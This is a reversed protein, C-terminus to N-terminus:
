ELGVLELNLLNSTITAPFAAFRYRRSQVRVTYSGSAVETFEFSGFSSTTVNRVAGQSDILSVVANRLSQGAPTLARGSIVYRTDSNMTPRDGAQGFQRIIPGDTSRNIIWRSDSTRFVAFDAHGDGDYDGPVPLDNPGGIPIVNTAGSASFIVSFSGESPRYFSLDTEGDGDFDGPTLKDTSSGFEVVDMGGTSKQIVWEGTSPRFVAVDARGDGDYDAAVPVDGSAGHQIVTFGSYSQDIQWTGDTPRFVAVDAAGDGDFDAPSPIDTSNGLFTDFVALNSSSTVSWMGTTPRFIAADTVGDGDYDAPVQRDSSVGFALSKPSDSWSKIWTWTRNSPRFISLDTKGDGDFDSVARTVRQGVKLRAASWATKTGIKDFFGSVFVKDSSLTAVSFVVPMISGNANSLRGADFTYDLGGNAILRVVTNRDGSEGFSQFEGGILLKGFPLSSISRVAGVVRGSNFAANPFGSSDLKTVPGRHNGGPPTLTAAVYIAGDIEKLAYVPSFRGGHNATFQRDITGDTNLLALNEITPSGDIVFSGGILMKGDPRILIADVGSITTLFGVDLSDLSGDSNLRAFGTRPTANISDFRGGILIKGDSQVAISSIFKNSGVETALFSPDTTGDANLRVLVPGANFTPGNGGVLYKGDPQRAIAYVNAFPLSPVFLQDTSGESDVRAVFRRSAANITEFVGGVMLKGDPQTLSAFILGRRIIQGQFSDDPMGNPQLRVLATYVRSPTSQRIGGGILMTGDANVYGANVDWSTEYNTFFSEDLTGDDKLRVLGKAPYTFNGFNVLSISGGVLIKGDSQKLAFRATGFTSGSFFTPDAGGNALLRVVKSDGAVLIRSDDYVQITRVYQVFTDDTLSFGPDVSGDSNLRALGRRPITNITQIFGGILMKGDALLTVVHVFESGPVGAGFDFSTDVVGSADLRAVQKRPVGNITTFDGVVIVRGDPYVAAVNLLSANTTLNFGPDVSGDANLRVISKRAVGNFTVFFGSVLIKGDAQIHLRRVSADPGSGVSFSEDVSGDSNLRVVSNAYKGAIAGFRGGVYHKGDGASVVATVESEGPQGAILSFNADITGDRVFTNPVADSRLAGPMAAAGVAFVFYAIASALSKLM